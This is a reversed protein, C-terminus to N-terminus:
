VGGVFHLVLCHGRHVEHGRLESFLELTARDHQFVCLVARGEAVLQGAAGQQLDVGRVMPAVDGDLVRWLVDAVAGQAGEVLHGPLLQGVDVALEHGRERVQVRRVLAITVLHVEVLARGGSRGQEDQRREDGNGGSWRAGM